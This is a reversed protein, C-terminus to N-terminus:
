KVLLIYNNLSGQTGNYARLIISTGSTGINVEKDLNTTAGGSSITTWNNGGDASIQIDHDFNDQSQWVLKCVTVSSAATWAASRWEGANGPTMKFTNVDVKSTYSGNTKSTTAFNDFYMQSFSQNTRAFNKATEEFALNVEAILSTIDIGNALLNQFRGYQWQKSSTGIGGENNARPVINRTAM